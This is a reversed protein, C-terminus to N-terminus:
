NTLLPDPKNQNWCQKEFKDCARYCAGHCCEDSNECAEAWGKCAFDEGHCKKIYEQYLGGCTARKARKLNKLNKLNEECPEDAEDAARMIKKVLSAAERMAEVPEDAEGAAQMTKEDLSARRASAMTVALLIGAFVTLNMNASFVFFFLSFFFQSSISGLSSNGPINIGM